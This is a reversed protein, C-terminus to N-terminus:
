CSTADGLSQGYWPKMNWINMYWYWYMGFSPCIRNGFSNGVCIGIYRDVPPPMELAKAMGLSLLLLAIARWLIKM